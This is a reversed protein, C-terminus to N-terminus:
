SFKRLFAQVRTILRGSQVGSTAEPASTDERLGALGREAVLRLKGRFGPQEEVAANVAAKSFKWVQVGTLATATAAYPQGLILGVAGLSEGPGMRHVAISGELTAVTIELAGSAIIFMAEPADGQKIVPCDIEFTLSEVRAALSEREEKDLICFLDSQSLLDAPSPIPVRPITSQGSVALGIGAHKLHRQVESFLESRVTSLTKSSVVFFTIEYIACDGLLGTCVIEADPSAFPLRCSRVAATLAILCDATRVTPDLRMELTDGRVESPLSRNILRAKAVVSNPVIAINKHGTSVHTSRWTVQTVRGEIGGEVWILDGAKYPREIGVAIGSFVDSLTSQLALGLVIAIVGSTALLSAIPVSFAFAVVALSTAVYIVGAVLDSIIQTERPRGEMVLFVRALGVAVRAALVWWSAEILQEWLQGNIRANQFNPRLPSGIVQYLLATLLVFAALNWIVRGWLHWRPFGRPVAIAVVILASSTILLVTTESM